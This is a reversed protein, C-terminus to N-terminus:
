GRTAADFSEIELRRFRDMAEAGLILDASREEPDYDRWTPGGALRVARYRLEALWRPCGSDLQADLFIRDARERPGEGIAYLWDHPLAAPAGPGTPALLPWLIRPISLLDTRFGAPVVIDAPRWGRSPLGPWLYVWDSALRYPYAAGPRDLILLPALGLPFRSTKTM